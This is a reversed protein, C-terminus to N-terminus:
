PGVASSKVTTGTDWGIPCGMASSPAWLAGILLPWLAVAGSPVLAVIGLILASGPVVAGVVPIAESLALLFVTAYALHQHTAVFDTVSSFFPVM